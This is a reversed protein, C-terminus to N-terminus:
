PFCDGTHPENVNLRFHPAQAVLEVKGAANTIWGQAEVIAGRQDVTQKIPETDRSSRQSSSTSPTLTAWPAFTTNIGQAEDPNIPLGGRGSIIFTNLTRDGTLAARTSIAACRRAIQRTVDVVYNPLPVLNQAPNTQPQSIRISGSIGRDSSATIDSQPTDHLQPTIGIVNATLAVNGANQDRANATIDNSEAPAAIVFGGNINIDGGTGRNSNAGANTTISSQRRLLLLGIQPLSINAGGSDTEANLQARNDLLALQAEIQLMGAGPSSPSLSNVAVVAHDRVILHNTTIHVNGGRGTASRNVLFSVNDLGGSTALIGSRHGSGSTGAVNIDAAHIEVNGADGSSYTSAQVLAGNSLSLRQSRINIDGGNGRSSQDAASFLGSSTDETKSNSDNALITGVLSIDSAQIQINGANGAGFTTSTIQGGPLVQLRDTQIEIDGARGTGSNESRTVIFSVRALDSLSGGVTISDSTIRMRGGQGSGFSISGILGSRNIVLQRTSLRIMGATGAGQTGTSLASGMLVRVADSANVSLARGPRSGSTTSIIQANRNLVIQRGQLQIAGGVLGSTELIASRLRIEGFSQSRDYRLAWGQNPSILEARGQQAVSGLEIRGGEVSIRGKPMFIDGGILALTQGAPVSLGKLPDNFFDRQPEGQSDLINASSRNEIRGPRDGFQLGVPVQITLLSNTQPATASFQTRDAFDIRDATTALFSGGVNLSADRGFLIGNPNLLFFNATSLSNNDSRLVQLRGDIQSASSGTVRSFINTVSQDVLFTATSNQPISFQRFSHFLNTGRPTGGQIVTRDPTGTVASPTPLTADGRIQAMASPM